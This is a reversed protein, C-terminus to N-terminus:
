TDHKKAYTEAVNTVNFYEDFTILDNTHPIKLINFYHEYSEAKHHNLFKDLSDFKLSGYHLVSDVNKNKECTAHVITSIWKWVFCM